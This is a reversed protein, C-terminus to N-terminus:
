FKVQPATQAAQPAEFLPHQEFNFTSAILNSPFQRVRINYARVEENYRMREVSIRNETGALEDQLARFNESSRLQPYAEAIGLLGTVASQMLGDAAAKEPLTGAQLTAARAQSVKEFVEAEHGAYGKVSEVLNPILDARRKLQVDITSFGQDAENRLRVLRNYGLVLWLLIAAVLVIGIVLPTM